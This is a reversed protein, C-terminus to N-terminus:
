ARQVAAEAEAKEGPATARELRGFADAAQSRQAESAGELLPAALSRRRELTATLAAWREDVSAGLRRMSVSAAVTWVVAILALVVVAGIVIWLIALPDM